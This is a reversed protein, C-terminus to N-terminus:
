KELQNIKEFADNAKSILENHIERYYSKKTKNNFNEPPNNVKDIMKNRFEVIEEILEDIKKRKDNKVIYYYLFCNGIIEDILYNIDKKLDRISAM